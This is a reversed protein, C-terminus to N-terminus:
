REYQEKLKQLDTPTNANVFLEEFATGDIMNVSSLALLDRLKYQNKDMQNRIIPLLKQDYIGVLMQTHTSTKYVNILAEEKANKLLYDILAINLIPMDVPVVLIKSTKAVLLAQYIGAIPGVNKIQDNVIPYKTDLIDKNSSILINTTFNELLETANKLLTKGRFLLSLKDKGMRKSKGGAIIVGTIQM